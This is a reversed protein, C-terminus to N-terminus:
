HGSQAIFADLVEMVAHQKTKPLRRIIEIQKDLRSAPGRKKGAKVEQGLLEELALGLAHALPPLMFAPVRMRGVEYHALTQQAMGLQECLQHQTLNRAKRAQAIRAGLEKFYQEDKSKMAPWSTAIVAMLIHEAGYTM